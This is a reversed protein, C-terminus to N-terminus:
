KIYDRAWIEVNPFEWQLEDVPATQLAPCTSANLHKLMPCATLFQRVVDADIGPCGDVVLTQLRTCMMLAQLVTQPVVAAYRAISVTTLTEALKGFLAALGAESHGSANVSGSTSTSASASVNMGELILTRLRSVRGVEALDDDTLPIRSLCLEELAGFAALSGTALPTIGRCAWLNLHTLTTTLAPSPTGAAGATTSPPAPPHHSNVSAIQPSSATASAASPLPPPSALSALFVPTISACGAVTLMQLAPCGHAILTADADALPAFSLDLKILLRLPHVALAALISTTCFTPISLSTCSAHVALFLDSLTRPLVGRAVLVSGLDVERFVGSADGCYTRLFATSVLRLRWLEIGTLYVSIRRVFLEDLVYPKWLLTSDRKTRVLGARSLQGVM